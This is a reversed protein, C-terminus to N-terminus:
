AGGGIGRGGGPNTSLKGVLATQVRGIHIICVCGPASNPGTSCNLKPAGIIEKPGAPICIDPTLPGPCNAPMWDAPENKGGNVMVAVTAPKTFPPLFSGTSPHAFQGPGGVGSMQMGAPGFSIMPPVSVSSNWQALSQVLPTQMMWISPNLGADTAFNDLLGPPPAPLPAPTYNPTPLPAPAPTFNPTPLPAPVPTLAPAPVAPTIPAAPAASKTQMLAAMVAQSVGQSNLYLMDDASLSYSKGSGKIFSLIVDDSMHAQALKVIEQLDPSLNAATTQAHSAPGATLVVWAMVVAVFVGIVRTSSEM